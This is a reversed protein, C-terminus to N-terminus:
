PLVESPGGRPSPRGAGGAALLIGFTRRLRRRPRVDVGGGALLHLDRAARPGPRGRARARRDRLLAGGRGPGGGRVRPPRRRAERLLGRPRGGRLPSGGPRHHIAGRGGRVELVEGSGGRRLIRVVRGPPPEGAGGGPSGDIRRGGAARIPPLRLRR